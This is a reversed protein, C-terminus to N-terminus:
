FSQGAVVITGLLVLIFLVLAVTVARRPSGTGPRSRRRSRRSLRKPPLPPLPVAMRHTPETEYRIIQTEDRSALLASARRVADARVYYIEETTL